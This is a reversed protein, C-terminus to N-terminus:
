NASESFVCSLSNQAERKGELGWKSEVLGLWDRFESDVTASVLVEFYIPFGEFFQYPEVMELLTQM